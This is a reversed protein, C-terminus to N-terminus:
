FGPYLRHLRELWQEVQSPTVTSIFLDKGTFRIIKNKKNCIYVYNGGVYITYHGSVDTTIRKYYQQLEDLPFDTLVSINEMM